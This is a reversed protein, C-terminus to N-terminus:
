QPDDAIVANKYDNQTDLAEHSESGRRLEGDYERPAPIIQWGSLIFPVVIPDMWQGNYMRAFHLHSARAVGGECSPHGIPDGVNVQTGETVRGGVAMHMYMLSWGSGQFNGNGLSLIVRGHETRVVRGSAAAIAWDGSVACGAGAADNPTLDIAGWEAYDGWPSHPGGTFYWKLGSKWPLRLPPQTLGPPVLPDIPTPEGFLRRYTAIFGSPGIQDLWTDWTTNLALVRQIAASGPNLTAAVRARTKDKFQLAPLRGTLKGYYGQNLQNAAWSAQYFLTAKAPDVLGMSYAQQAQTVTKNTVWGGQFELLALLVRPGVSYREALIQIIQPGSMMEGDVKEKYGVLYGGQQNAFSVADFSLYAPSYIVESDPLLFTAPADRGGQTPIRLTQGVRLANPSKIGNLQMLEQVDINFRIAIQSLTDGARVVYQDTPTPYSLAIPPTPPVTPTAAPSPLTPTHSSLQRIETPGPPSTTPSPANCAVLLILLCGGLAFTLPLRM